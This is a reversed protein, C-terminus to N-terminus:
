LFMEDSVRFCFLESSNSLIFCSTNRKLPSSLWSFYIFLHINLSRSAYIHSSDLAVLVVSDRRGYVTYTKAWLVAQHAGARPTPMSRRSKGSFLSDPKPYSIHLPPPPPYITTQVQLMKFCKNLEYCFDDLLWGACRESWNLERASASKM